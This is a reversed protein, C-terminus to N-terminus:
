NWVAFGRWGESWQRNNGIWHDQEHTGLFATAHVLVEDTTKICNPSAGAFLHAAQLHANAARDM